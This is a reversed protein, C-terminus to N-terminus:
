NIATHEVVTKEAAGFVPAVEGRLRALFFRPRDLYVNLYGNPAADVRAVGSVSQVAPALQQAIARPPKKLVRALQFAVTVALDGMARNPPVEVSFVPVDDVGLERRVAGAIADHLQRQLSLMM